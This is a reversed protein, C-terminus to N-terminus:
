TRAWGKAYAPGAAATLLSLAGLGAVTLRRITFKM